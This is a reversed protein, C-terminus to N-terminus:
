KGNSIERILDWKPFFRMVKYNVSFKVNLQYFGKLNRADQSFDINVFNTSLVGIMNRSYMYIYM